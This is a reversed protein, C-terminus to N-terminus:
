AKAGHQQETHTSTEAVQSLSNANPEKLSLKAPRFPSAACAEFSDPIAPLRAHRSDLIVAHNRTKTNQSLQCSRELPEYQLSGGIAVISNGITGITSITTLFIFIFNESSDITNM